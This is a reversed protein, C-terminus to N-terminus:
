LDVKEDPAAVPAVLPTPARGADDPYSGMTSHHSWGDSEGKTRSQLSRCV